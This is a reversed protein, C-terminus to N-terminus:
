NGVVLYIPLVNFSTQEGNLISLAPMLGVHGHLQRQGEAEMSGQMPWPVLRGWLQGEQPPLRPLLVTQMKVIPPLDTQLCFSPGEAASPIAQGWRCTKCPKLVHLFCHAKLACQSRCRRMRLELCLFCIAMPPPPLNSQCSLPSQDM